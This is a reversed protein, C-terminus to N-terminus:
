IAITLRQKSRRKLSELHRQQNEEAEKKEDETMWTGPGQYDAQDDFVETRRAFDRDFRLLREKQQYARDNRGVNSCVGFALTITMTM